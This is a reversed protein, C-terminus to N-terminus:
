DQADVGGAGSRITLLASASDYDGGLLTRFEWDHIATEAKAYEEAVFSQTEESEELSLSQLESLTNKLEDFSRQERELTEIEQM